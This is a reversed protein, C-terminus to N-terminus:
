EPEGGGHDHDHPDDAGSALGNTVSVPILEPIPAFLDDRSAYFAVSHAVADAMQDFLELSINDFTDCALHYCPDFQEGVTGGYVDALEQTMLVEAGTFLGGAPIDVGPEIFPGYDSRGSFETPEVPLGLRVFHNIFMQEIHDSGPPGAPDTDSGDGDYIFRVGNPSGIMDFNLNMAIEDLEAQTANAVYFESGLLGSEEAGWWAFRVRNRLPNDDDDDDDDDDHVYRALQIAVELIAASGTGNDQIGPGALVSDLHAGVVITQDPNGTRTDAIVNETPVDINREGDVQLNVEVDNTAADSLALSWGIGSATGVVPVDVPPLDDGTNDDVRGSVADPTLTGLFADEVNTEAGNNFIIVGVAGAEVARSAKEFFTCGGRRILAIQGAGFGGFDARDCGSDGSPAAVTGIDVAEIGVSVNGNGSYSMTAFGTASGPEYMTPNPAVQDFVPTSLERFFTFTFAQRTVSYGARELMRVVYDVSEDYGPTGSARTGDNRDAIEQWAQQHRRLGRLTVAHQLDESFEETLEAADDDDDDDDDAWAVPTAVMGVFLLAILAKFFPGFM